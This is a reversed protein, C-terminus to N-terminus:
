ITLDWGKLKRVQDIQKILTNWQLIHNNVEDELQFLLKDRLLVLQDTTLASYPMSHLQIAARFQTYNLQANEEDINFRLNKRLGLREKIVTCRNRVKGEEDRETLDRMEQPTFWLPFKAIFNQTIHKKSFNGLNDLCADIVTEITLDEFEEPIGSLIKMKLKKIQDMLPKGEIPKINHNAAITEENAKLFTRLDEQYKFRPFKNKELYRMYLEANCKIRQQKIIKLLTHRGPNNKDTSYLMSVCHNLCQQLQEQTMDVLRIEDQVKIDGVTKKPGKWVYSKVDNEKDTKASILASEVTNM